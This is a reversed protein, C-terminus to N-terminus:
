PRFKEYGHGLLAELVHLVEPASAIFSYARSVGVNHYQTNIFKPSLIANVIIPAIPNALVVAGKNRNDDSAGLLDFDTSLLSPNQYKRTQIILKEAPGAIRGLGTM